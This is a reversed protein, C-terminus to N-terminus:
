ENTEANSGEISKKSEVEDMQLILDVTSNSNKKSVEAHGNKLELDALYEHEKVTQLESSTEPSLPVSEKHIGMGKSLAVYKLVLKKYCNLLSHVDQITLDGANAFLFPYDQFYKSTNGELLDAAGKKELDSISLRNTLAKENANVDKNADYSQSPVHQGQVSVLSDLERNAKLIGSRQELDDLNTKTQQDDGSTSTGMLHARASEMKNLFEKEEMSLAQADINWIFSEASLINTFFYAAESVLRSQRRYRQIYLLNSHLQPPNAQLVCYVNKHKYDPVAVSFSFVM